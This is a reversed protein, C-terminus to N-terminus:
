LTVFGDPTYIYKFLYIHKCTPFNKEYSNDDREYLNKSFRELYHLFINVLRLEEACKFINLVIRM